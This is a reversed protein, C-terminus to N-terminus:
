RVIAGEKELLPVFFDVSEKPWHGDMGGYVYIVKKGDLSQSFQQYPFLFLTLILIRLLKM